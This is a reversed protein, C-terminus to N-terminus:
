HVAAVTILLQGRIRLLLLAGWRGNRLHPLLLLSVGVASHAGGSRLLLLLLIIM